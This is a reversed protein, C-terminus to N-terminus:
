CCHECPEEERQQARARKEDERAEGDHITRGERGPRHRGAGGRGPMAPGGAAQRGAASLTGPVAALAREPRPLRAGDASSGAGPVQRLASLAPTMTM